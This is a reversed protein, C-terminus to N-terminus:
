IVVLSTVQKCHVYHLRDTTSVPYSDTPEIRPGSLLSTEVKSHM